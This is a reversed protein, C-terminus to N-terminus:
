EAADDKKGQLFSQMQALLEPTMEQFTYRLMDAPDPPPIEEFAKVAAEIENLVRRLVQEQYSRSWLGKKEMYKQLRMIPDKRRWVEVEESKRYRSADDVTTHDSMRYTVGEILTPGDGGRARALAESTVKYVALVDNGDVQIGPFGFGIAKQALTQAATQRHLPVSIAWRNNQCFFVVPLAFVGAFNLGENFDGKSTAGEGFYCIVAAKDGKAKAAWGAGAAIPIHTGVPITIPFDHHDKPFISGREDGSWYQFIMKLPLGRVISVATERYTPFMWDAPSLAFASGVQAAEQGLLPAYTGLRGERQLKFAREDFARASVMWEYLKQIDKDGLQPRLVEDCNGDEDLVQLWPVSFKQLVKHPM